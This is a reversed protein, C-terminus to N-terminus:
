SEELLEVFVPARLGNKTRELYSVSCFLGPEVWSGAETTDVFPERRARATCLARLRTRLADSLGSGVRGVCALRGEFEAAIV